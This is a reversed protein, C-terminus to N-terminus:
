KQKPQILVTEPELNKSAEPQPARRAEQAKRLATDWDVKLLVDWGPSERKVRCSCRGTLFMTIDEISTDDLEELPWAGLVRGRGFVPAAFCQGKALVQACKQGALMSCFLKETADKQSVRMLTLKLKLTPGPGLQSDPDDPDQPPLGIVQELYHLRKELHDAAAKSEPKDDIVAVWIVSEGDLIRKLLEKRAPSELLTDLNGANLAGSWLPASGDRSDLLHPEKLAADSSENIKLNAAANGHFPILLKATEPQKLASAPVVLRFGDSEWRDLAFRFVPITCGWAAHAALVLALWLASGRWRPAQQLHTKM